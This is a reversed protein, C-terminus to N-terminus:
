ESEIVRAMAPYHDSSILERSGGTIRFVMVDYGSKGSNRMRSSPGGRGVRYSVVDVKNDLEQVIRPRVALAKEGSISVTLRRDDLRARIQIPYDFPNEFKLDINSYAVAADLGVPVYSPAFHHRSREVIKMGSLLATNYLTTSTQCVGGGWADILQGNYSVPARRYGADRSFSGVRENFSFVAHPPVIAGDLKRVALDANHRQSASRGDLSTHYSALIQPGRPQVLGWCAAGAIAAILAFGITKEPYNM